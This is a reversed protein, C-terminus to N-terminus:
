LSRHEEKTECPQGSSTPLSLRTEIGAGATFSDIYNIYVNTATFSDIYNIYVNTPSGSRRM